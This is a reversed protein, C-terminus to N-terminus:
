RNIDESIKSKTKIRDSIYGLRRLENFVMSYCEIAQEESTVGVINVAGNFLVLVTGHERDKTRTQILNLKVKLTPSIEDRVSEFKPYNWEKGLKKSNIYGRNQKELIENVDLNRKLRIKGTFVMNVCKLM